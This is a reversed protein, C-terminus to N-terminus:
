VATKVLHKYARGESRWRRRVDSQTWTSSGRNLTTLRSRGDCASACIASPYSILSVPLADKVKVHQRSATLFCRLCEEVCLSTYKFVSCVSTQRIWVDQVHRIGRQALPPRALLVNARHLALILTLDHSLTRLRM